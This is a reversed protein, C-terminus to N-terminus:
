TFTPCLRRARGLHLDMRLQVSRGRHSGTALFCQEKSHILSPPVNVCSQRGLLMTKASPTPNSGV